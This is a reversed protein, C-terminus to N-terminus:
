GGSSAMPSASVLELSPGGNSGSTPTPEAKTPDATAAQSEKAKRAAPNSLKSILIAENIKEMVVAPDGEYLLEACREPTLSPDREHLLQAHLMIALLSMNPNQLRLHQDLTPRFFSVGGLVETTRMAQFDWKLLRPKDLDIPVTGRVADTERM